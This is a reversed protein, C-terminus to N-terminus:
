AWEPAARRVRQRDDVVDAERRVWLHEVAALEDPRQERDIRGLVHKHGGDCTPKLGSAASGLRPEGAFDVGEHRSFEYCLRGLPLHHM